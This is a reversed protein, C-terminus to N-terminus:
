ILSGLFTFRWRFSSNDSLFAASFYISVKRPSPITLLIQSCKWIRSFLLVTSSVCIYKHTHTHTLSLSLSLMYTYTYM